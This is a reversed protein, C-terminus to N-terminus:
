EFGSAFVADPASCGQASTLCTLWADWEADFSTGIGDLYTAYGAYDGARFQGVMHSVHEPHREFMFRVGLYGWRYVRTTGSYYDNDFVTSIPFAHLAAQALAADYSRNRYSYSMYEAFGELWWVTPATLYASFNGRMDFRGDLYHIYEHTLNWIEFAPRLWEAEYAIFRPQNVPDTPDGELYIGGNNTNNGFLVGSYTEYDTSSHFIVMELSDNQDGAVPTGGTQLRQHFYTEEGAVQTCTADLQAATLAQARLHLTPSCTHAIPLAAAEVQAPFGCIGYYACNDHDYWDAMEAASVWLSAGPGTVAYAQLVARVRPRVDDKYPLPYQLFRGLEHAANSLLYEQDTGVEAGNRSIFSSLTALITSDSQVLSRFDDDYHGRFLVTFCANVASKMYWLSDYAPGYRDLLGRVLGLGYANEGSSDILVIFESLTRGHADTVDAFHANGSFADIAGRIAGKLAAGYPGVDAAQYYQVYYGARLFLVLQQMGNTTDGAYSASRQTMGNAVAVMKAEGFVQGATAGTLSFLGNICDLPASTVRDVLVTGSATAFTGANCTDALAKSHRARDVPRDYDVRLHERSSPLPPRQAAGIRDVQHHVADPASAGGTPPPTMAFATLSCLSVLGSALLRLKM